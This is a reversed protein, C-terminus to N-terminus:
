KAEDGYFKQADTKVVKTGSTGGHEFSDEGFGADIAAKRFGRVADPHKGFGTEKLWNQLNEPFYKEVFRSSLAKTEALREGGIERDSALQEEWQKSSADMITKSEDEIIQRANGLMDQVIDSERDLWAQSQEKTLGLLKGEAAIEEAHVPDLVSGEPLDLTYAVEGSKEDESSEGEKESGTEEEGSVEESGQQEKSEGQQSSDKSTGGAQTEKEQGTSEAEKTGEAASHESTKGEESGKENGVNKDGQQTQDEKFIAESM